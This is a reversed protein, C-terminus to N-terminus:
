AEYCALDRPNRAKEKLQERDMGLDEVAMVRIQSRSSLDIESFIALVVSGSMTHM